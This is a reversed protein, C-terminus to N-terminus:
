YYTVPLPKEIAIARHPIDYSNGTNPLPALGQGRQGDLALEAAAAATKKLPIIFAGTMSRLVPLAPAKKM